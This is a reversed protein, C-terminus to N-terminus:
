RPRYPPQRSTPVAASRRTAHKNKKVERGEVRTPEEQEDMEKLAVEKGSQKSVTDVEQEESYKAGEPDM